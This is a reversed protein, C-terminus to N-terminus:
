IVHEDRQICALRTSLELKTPKDSLFCPEFRGSVSSLSNDEQEQYIEHRSSQMIELWVSKDCACIICIYKHLDAYNEDPLIDVERLADVNRCLVVNIPVRDFYQSFRDWSRM